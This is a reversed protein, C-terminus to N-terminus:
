HRDRAARHGPRGPDRGARVRGCARGAATPRAHWGPRTWSSNWNRLRDPSGALPRCTSPIKPGLVSAATRPKWCARWWSMGDTVTSPMTPGTVQRARTLPISEKQVRARGARGLLVAPCGPATRSPWRPVSESPARPARPRAPTAPWRRRRLPTESRPGPRRDLGRRDLQQRRPLHTRTRCGRRRCWETVVLSRRAVGFLSSQASGGAVVLGVAGAGLRRSGRAAAGRHISVKQLSPQGPSGSAAPSLDPLRPTVSVQITLHLRPTRHEAGPRM